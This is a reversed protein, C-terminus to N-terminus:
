RTMQRCKVIRFSLFAPQVGAKEGEFLKGSGLHSMRVCLGGSPTTEFLTYQGSTRWLIFIYLESGARDFKKQRLKFWCVRCINWLKTVQGAYKGQHHGQFTCRGTNFDKCWKVENQINQKCKDDTANDDVKMNNFRIENELREIKYYNCWTFEGKEIANLTERYLEKSNSFGLKENLWSIRKMFHTCTSKEPESINVRHLIQTEGLIYLDFTMNDFWAPSNGM